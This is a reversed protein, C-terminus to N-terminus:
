LIVTVGAIRGPAKVIAVTVPGLHCPESEIAVHSGGHEGASGNTKTVPEFRHLDHLLRPGVGGCRQPARVAVAVLATSTCAGVRLRANAM